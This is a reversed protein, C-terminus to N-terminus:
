SDPSAKGPQRVARWVRVPQRRPGGRGPVGALGAGRLRAGGASRRRRGDVSRAGRVDWSGDWALDRFGDWGVASTGFYTGLRTGDPLRVGRQTRPARRVAGRSRAPRLELGCGVANLLWGGM